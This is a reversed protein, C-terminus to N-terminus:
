PNESNYTESSWGISRCRSREEQRELESQLVRYVSARSPPHSDGIEIARAAVRVAVQARSRRRGGRNGARYTQLIYDSWDEDLRQEGRDSRGQRVIGDVGETQWAKILLQVNRVTMNLQQAIEQQLALYTQRDPANALQQM